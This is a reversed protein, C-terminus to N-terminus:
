PKKFTLEQALVSQLQLVKEYGSGSTQYALTGDTRVVVTRPVFKTFYRHYITQGPDAVLPFTLKNEGSLKVLEERQYGRGIALMHFGEKDRLKQFIESELYRLDALSSPNSASFFYLLVVKGKLGALTSRRGTIDEFSFDPAPEGKRVLTSAQIEQDLEDTAFIPFVTLMLAPFLLRSLIRM